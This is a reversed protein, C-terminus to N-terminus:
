APRAPADQILAIRQGLDDFGVRADGVQLAVDEDKLRRDAARHAEIQPRTWPTPTGPM